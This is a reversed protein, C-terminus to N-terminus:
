SKINKELDEEDDLLEKDDNSEFNENVLNEINKEIQGDYEVKSPGKEDDEGPKIFTLGGAVLFTLAIAVYGTAYIHPKSLFVNLYWILHRTGAVMHYAFPLVIFFKLINFLTRSCDCDEIKKALADISIDCCLGSVGIIWIGMALLFGSIRLFISMVSTLQIKYIRLHPSLERGLKMNMEDYGMKPYMAPLIRLEIKPPGAPGKPKGKEKKDGERKGEGGGHGDENDLIDVEDLQKKKGSRSKKKSFNNDDDDDKFKSYSITQQILPNTLIRQNGYMYLQASQQLPRKFYRNISYM